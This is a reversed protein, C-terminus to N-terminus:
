DLYFESQACVVVYKNDISYNLETGAKLDKHSNRYLEKFDRGDVVVVHYFIFIFTQGMIFTFLMKQHYALM